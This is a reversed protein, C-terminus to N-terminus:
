DEPSGAIKCQRLLIKLSRVGVKNAPKKEKSLDAIASKLEEEVASSASIKGKKQKRKATTSSEPKAQQKSRRYKDKM